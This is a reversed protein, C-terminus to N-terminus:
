TPWQSLSCKTNWATHNFSIEFPEENQLDQLHDWFILLLLPCQFLLFLPWSTLLDSLWLWDPGLRTSQYLYKDKLHRALHLPHAHPSIKSPVSLKPNRSFCSRQSAMAHLLSQMLPQSYLPLSSLLLLLTPFNWFCISNLLIEIFRCCRSSSVLLDLHAGASYHSFFLWLVGFSWLFHLDISFPM